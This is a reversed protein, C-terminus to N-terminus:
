PLDIKHQGSDESTWTNVDHRMNQALRLLGRSTNIIEQERDAYRERRQAADARMAAEREAQQRYRRLGEMVAKSATSQYTADKTWEILESGARDLRITLTKAM